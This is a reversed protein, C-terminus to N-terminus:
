PLVIVAIFSTQQAIKYAIHKTSYIKFIPITKLKKRTYGEYMTFPKTNYITKKGM